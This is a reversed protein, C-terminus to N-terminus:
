GAPAYVLQGFLERNAAEIAVVGAPSALWDVFTVAAESGPMAIARYPNDLWEDAVLDAVRLNGPLEALVTGLEALAFADRDAAVLLTFGMGQGTAFSWEEGPEVGISEWIATEREFTGSGDARSVHTWENRAIEAFAERVTLGDVIREPPGVLVFRSAFVTAVRAAAARELFAAELAPAHVIVVEAAGKDALEFAEGSAAGVVSVDIGPHTEEFRAELAGMLGSDVVTTGAVVVLREGGGSCATLTAAALWVLLLSGTRRGIM